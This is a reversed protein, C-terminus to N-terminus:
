AGWWGILGGTLASSIMNVQTNSLLNLGSVVKTDPSADDSDELLIFKKSTSYRTRQMTAGLFSDIASGMGGALAGLYLMEWLLPAAGAGSERCAKNGLLLSVAGLLGIVAGGLVSFLTGGPTIGGNTGPPVRRFTTILRPSSPALIGLESALTDGLCCGFHGLAVFILTRSWPHAASNAPCWATSDYPPGTRLSSLLTPLYPWLIRAHISSSAYLTAWLMAAAWGTFSNAIVQSATRNGLGDNGQELTAKRAKGVRTARSGGAYLGIMMIGFARLPVSFLSVGIVWGALAGSPSLSRKRLGHAILLTGLAIPATNTPLNDYVDNM